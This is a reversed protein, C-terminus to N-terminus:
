QAFLSKVQELTIGGPASSSLSKQTEDDINQLTPLLTVLTIGSNITSLSSWGNTLGQLVNKVVKDDAM